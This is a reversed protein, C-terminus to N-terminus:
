DQFEMSARLVTFSKPIANDYLVAQATFLSFGSGSMFRVHCRAEDDGRRM